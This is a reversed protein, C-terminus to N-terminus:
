LKSIRVAGESSSVGSGIVTGGGLDSSQEYQHPIYSSLLLVGMKPLINTLELYWTITCCQILDKFVDSFAKVGRDCFSFRVAQGPQGKFLGVLSKLCRLM